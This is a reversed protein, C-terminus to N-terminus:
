LGPVGKLLSFERDLLIRRDMLRAWPSREPIGRDGEEMKGM